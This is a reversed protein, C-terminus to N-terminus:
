SCSNGTRLADATHGTGSSIMAPPTGQFVIQGGDAACDPGVDILWDSQQMLFTNHEIMVVSHGKAVLGKLINLLRTVDAPHLGITPEDLIFLTPETHGAALETALRVRQSEGGSFTSSPQGLSMYGLGISCFTQLISEIRSFERFHLAAKDIRMALVDAVTKGSFRVALTAQNFRRGDCQPCPISATPLFKMQLDRIGTGKCEECRGDGSNFSFRAPSFGLRRAQRTHGFIRRIHNWVKSHTAICSRRNRSLPQGDVAVVRAIQNLGEIAACQSDALATAPDGTKSCASDAVPLLTDIILSTKGSGSVGTVCVLKQLPIDVTVKQLNNISADKISLVADSRAPAQVDTPPSPDTSSDPLQSDGRLFRATPTDSQSAAADPPGCFLLKGGDAGAGPGLDLLCDAARMIEEDHEVVVVTSGSDRISELVRLLRLTDRPHLGSTPEDLVFCAGYLSTGLCAALRTRQYEGGSLTRTPRDLTLYQLGVQALCNLRQLIDPLTRAAVLTAQQGLAATASSSDDAASTLQTVWGSILPLAQDIRLATLQAINMGLFTFASPFPLLRSGHCAPCPQRRFVTIDDSDDVVGKVGHGQCERCAGQASNFSFMAPEPTRFSLSCDPCAFQTSFLKEHWEDDQQWCVLCTGDSERLALEVSERLRGDIGERIILRDVVAEITHSVTSKLEPVEAVDLLEGDVRVRVFGNRSIREVVERHAGRRSQVMPSLIMVRTREPFELTQEVIRDISQSRVPQGCQTCHATGARAFLLRIYDYIETTVAVTSRVPATNTRQDVSVTPPLGSVEDVDPRPLQRLLSRTHVSVSELYRRQGEAFITDFALSSKGSGSVGTMVILQQLPLDVNINQLNHTRAGRVRISNEKSDMAPM